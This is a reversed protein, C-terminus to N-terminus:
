NVKEREIWQCNMCLTRYGEPYSNNKLYRYFHVGGHINLDKRHKNGNGNIHDITLCNIRNELCIVCTPKNETGYHSLVDNRILANYNKQYSPHSKRWEKMYSALYIKRELSKM